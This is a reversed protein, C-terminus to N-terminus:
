PTTTDTRGNKRELARRYAQQYRLAAAEWSHAAPARLIAAQDWTRDLAQEIAGALARPDNDPTILGLAPDGIAEPVGGVRPSVIPLGCAMAEYLITPWGESFSSLALLDAGQYHLALRKRDALGAFVVRRALGTRRAQAELSARQSGDGVLVLLADERVDCMAAILRDYGKVPELRGVALVVPRGAPLSTARRAQDKDGPRFVSLDVGNPIHLVREPAVGLARVKAVLARSVAVVVEAQRLASVIRPKRQKDRALVNIDSGHVTVVLPLGHKRCLLAAAAADPYAYHAHVLAPGCRCARAFARRSWFALLRDDFNKFAKPVTFFACRHVPFPAPPEKPPCPPTRWGNRPAVVEVAALRALAQTLEQVFIGHAPAQRSPFLSTYVLVPGM